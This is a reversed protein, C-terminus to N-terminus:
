INTSLISRDQDNSNDLEQETDNYRMDDNHRNDDDHQNNDNISDSRFTNQPISIFYGNFRLGYASILFLYLWYLGYKM